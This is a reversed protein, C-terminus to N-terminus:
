CSYMNLFFPMGFINDHCFWTQLQDFFEVNILYFGIMSHIMKSCRTGNISQSVTRLEMSVFKSMWNIAVWVTLWEGKKSKFISFLNRCYIENKKFKKYNNLFLCYFFKWHPVVVISHFQLFINYFLPFPRLVYWCVNWEM